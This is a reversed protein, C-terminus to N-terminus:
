WIFVRLVGGKKELSANYFLLNLEESYIELDSPFNGHNIVTGNEFEFSFGFDISNPLNFEEKLFSYNELYLNSLNFIQSELFYKNKELYNVEVNFSIGSFSNEIEELYFKSYYLSYVENKEDDFLIDCNDKNFLVSEEISDKLLVFYDEFCVGDLSLKFKGSGINPSTFVVRSVEVNLFSLINEKTYSLLNTKLSNDRILPSLISFIYILFTIFIVFSFIMGVHSAKKNIM